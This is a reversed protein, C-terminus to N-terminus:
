CYLDQSCVKWKRISTRLAKILDSLLQLLSPFRLIRLQTVQVDYEAGEILKCGRDVRVADGTNSDIKYYRFPKGWCGNNDRRLEADSVFNNLDIVFTGCERYGQPVRSCIRFYNKSVFVNYLIKYPFYLLGIDIFTFFATFFQSPTLLYLFFGFPIILSVKKIFRNEGHAVSATLPHEYRRMMCKWIYKANPLLNGRGDDMRSFVGNSHGYYRNRGTPRGWSGLGDSNSDCQQLHECNVVFTGEGRFGQPISMCVKSEHVHIAGALIHCAERSDQSLLVPCPEWNSQMSYNKKRSLDPVL